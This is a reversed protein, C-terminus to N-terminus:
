NKSVKPVGNSRNASGNGNASAQQQAVLDNMVMQSPDELQSLPTIGAPVWVEDLEPDVIEEMNMQQRKENPTIWWSINLYNALGTMDKQLEPLESADSAIFAADTIGFAPLLVRNFEGDLQKCDPLIENSIWSKQAVEKNAYTTQSDFFEYPMGFLFCLEQMSLQKGKLLEMDVSSKAFDMWSWDGQLAAVAGKVDNNNIKADIVSRLQSEQEPGMKAISKNALVGKAGDNQYMRVSSDTASNNQELTKRGPTLPSMGRLHSKSVIDFRLNVDKWHIIDVKRIPVRINSQLIYGYVDFVNEPDPVVIIQNSPLVYMEMIPRKMQEEDSIDSFTGDQGLQSTDGRNLWIFAEGCTKYFSRVKALFADQGESGNPRNLLKTLDPNDYQDPAASKLEGFKGRVYLGAKEQTTTASYLYRPIAAFKKADRKIIAYVATNGEFGETIATTANIDPYVERTGINWSQGLLVARQQSFWSAIRSIASTIINAL